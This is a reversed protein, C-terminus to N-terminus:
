TMLFKHFIRLNDEMEGWKFGLCPVRTIANKKLVEKKSLFSSSDDKKILLFEWIRLGNESDAM